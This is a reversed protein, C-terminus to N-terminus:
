AAAQKSKRTQIGLERRVMASKVALRLLAAATFPIERFKMDADNEWNRVTRDTVRFLRALDVRRLGLAERAETIEAPTM